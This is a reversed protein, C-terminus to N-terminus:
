LHGISLDPPSANTRWPPSLVPSNMSPLTRGGVLFFPPGFSSTMVFILPLGPSSYVSMM